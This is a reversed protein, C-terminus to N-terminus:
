AAHAIGQACARLRTHFASVLLRGILRSAKGRLSWWMRLEVYTLGGDRSLSVELVQDQLDDVAGDPRSRWAIATRPRAQVVADTSRRGDSHENRITGDDLEEVSSVAPDWEPRRAPDALLSWVRDAPVALQQKHAASMWHAGDPAPGLLDSRDAVVPAPTRTPVETRSIVQGIDAGAVVLISRARGGEDQILARLLARDDDKASVRDVLERMRPTLRVTTPHRKSAPIMRREAEATVGAGALEESHLDEAAARVADLDLGAGALIRASPGGVALLGVLLHDADIEPHGLAAAEDASAVEVLYRDQWLPAGRSPPTSPTM